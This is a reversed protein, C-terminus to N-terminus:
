KSNNAEWPHMILIVVNKNGDTNTVTSVVLRVSGRDFGIMRFANQIREVPADSFGLRRADDEIQKYRDVSESESLGVLLRMISVVKGDIINFMTSTITIVTDDYTLRGGDNEIQTPSGVQSLVEARSKDLLGILGDDIYKFEHMSQTGTKRIFIAMALIFSVLIAGIVIRWIKERRSIRILPNVIEPASATAIPTAVNQRDEIARISAGCNGCFKMEPELKSGCKQCYNM